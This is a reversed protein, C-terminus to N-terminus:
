LMQFSSFSKEITDAARSAVDSFQPIDLAKVAVQQEV